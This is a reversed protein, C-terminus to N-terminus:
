LLRDLPREKDPRGELAAMGPGMQTLVQVLQLTQRVGGTSDDDALERLLEVPRV